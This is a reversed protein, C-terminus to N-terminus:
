FRLGNSRNIKHIVKITFKFWEIVKFDWFLLKSIMKM